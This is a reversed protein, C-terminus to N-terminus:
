LRDKLLRTEMIDYNSNNSMKWIGSAYDERLSEEMNLLDMTRKDKKFPYTQKSRPHAMIKITDKLLKEMGMM